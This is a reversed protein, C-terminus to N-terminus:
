RLLQALDKALAEAGVNYQEYLRVQGQPDFVFSASTHSVTYSEPTRGPEKSYVIKFAKALQRLQEDGTPRLGIFSPDFAAAYAKVVEPTDREPDVTVFVAQVREGDRGLLQKAKAVEVLTTPCVDPCQTYGFFLVVAKGAFDALRWTKGDGDALEFSQAYPAGTIDVGTFRVTQGDPRQDCGSLGLLGLVGVSAAALGSRRSIARM